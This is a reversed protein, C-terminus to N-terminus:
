AAAACECGRTLGRVRHGSDLTDGRTHGGRAAHVDAQAGWLVPHQERAQVGDLIGVASATIVAESPAVELRRCGALPVLLPAEDQLLRAHELHSRHSITSSPSSPEAVAAATLAWGLMRGQGWARTHTAGEVCLLAPSEAATHRSCFLVSRSVASWGHVVKERFGGDHPMANYM